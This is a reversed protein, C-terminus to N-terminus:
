EGEGRAQSASAIYITALMAFIYAQIVGILIGLIDLLVPAFFPIVVLLIATIKAGSLINGFLRFALALTRSIEGLINFPLMVTSPRIYRGLYDRFGRASIGYLPVAFFVCVALATTTSLSATPPVYGPVFALLNAALIFLFLTAIFDLYRRPDDQRNVAAIQARVEELIIELLLQWRSIPSEPPLRRTATWSLLLLALMIFWTYAITANVKLFGWQWLILNDPSIQKIGLVEM